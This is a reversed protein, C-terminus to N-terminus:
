VQETLAQKLKSVFGEEDEAIRKKVERWTAPCNKYEVGVIEHVIRDIVRKNESTVEIGAKKFVHQIHRFYCTVVFLRM